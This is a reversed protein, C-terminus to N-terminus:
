FKKAYVRQVRESVQTLVEYPISNSWNALQSITPDEGFIIVEDGTKVNLLTVDVMCMDMCINGVTYASQGNVLVYAKGMGYDRLFGDGYGIPLTAITCNKNIIGARGYGVTEGKKLQRLQSVKTKLRSIVKLEQQSWGNVEHGYMGIGLRVMDLQQEPYRLIGGTNLVHCMPKVKPDPFLNNVWRQFTEFQEETFEKEKAENSAALHTMCGKINLVDQDNLLAKLENLQEPELGLRNMGTNLMLHASIKAKHQQGYAISQRIQDLDYLEAELNYNLLKPLDIETTNLVLIPMDIGDQRLQVGEDAFAVCLYDIPLQELFHALELLGSGYALAKVMVMLKTQPKLSRKYFHINHAIADLDISLQTVHSKLFLPDIKSKNDQPESIWLLSQSPFSNKPRFPQHEAEFEETTRWLFHPYVASYINKIENSAIVTLSKFRKQTQIFQLAPHLNEGKNQLSIEFIQDGNIGDRIIVEM